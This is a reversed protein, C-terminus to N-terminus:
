AREEPDHFHVALAMVADLEQGSLEGQPGVVFPGSLHMDSEDRLWRYKAADSCLAAFEPLRLVAELEEACESIVERYGRDWEREQERWRALVRELEERIM